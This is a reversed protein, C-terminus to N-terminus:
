KVLLFLMFATDDFAWSLQFGSAWQSLGFHRRPLKVARGLVQM